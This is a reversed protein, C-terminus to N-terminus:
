FYDNAYIVLNGNSKKHYADEIVIKGIGQDVGTDSKLEVTADDPIDKIIDKLKGVTLEEVELGEDIKIM